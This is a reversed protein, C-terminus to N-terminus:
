KSHNKLVSSYLERYRGCVYNWSYKSANSLGDKVVNDVLQSNDLLKIKELLEECTFRDMLLTKNNGIVEPISSANLAIVPCGAAQAELIPIGFGEYSSPYVLCKVSNYIRNLESNSLNFYQCYRGKGLLKDFLGEEEETLKSGCFVVKYNTDKIFEIFKYCNKYSTRGGVYLLWDHLKTIKENDALPRYDSSVGNPIVYVKKPNVGKVFKLLDKKTNESICVVAESKSIARNRQWVHLFWGRRKHNFFYEYTFDHVTTINIANRNRCLRFYSSHFIFPQNVKVKPDCYREITFLFPSVLKIMESPIDMLRRFINFQDSKHELFLLEDDDHKLFQSTLEQWVVSIGGAKQLSYVINDFVIKM